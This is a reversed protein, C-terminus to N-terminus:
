KEALLFTIETRLVFLHFRLSLQNSSLSDFQTTYSNRMTDMSKQKSAKPGPLIGLDVSKELVARLSQKTSKLNWEMSGQDVLECDLYYSLDVSLHETKTKKNRPVLPGPEISTGPTSGKDELGTKRSVPVPDSSKTVM